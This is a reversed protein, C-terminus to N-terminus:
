TTFDFTKGNFSEGTEYWRVFEAISPDYKGALVEEYSAWFLEYHEDEPFSGEDLTAEFAPSLAHHIYEDSYRFITEHIGLSKLEPEKGTLSLVLAQASDDMSVGYKQLGSPLLYNNMHEAAASRRRSLVIKTKDPSFIFFKILVRPILRPKLKEPSVYNIWRAGNATLVFGEDVREVLGRGELKKMHYMFLSNQVDDPKLANFSVVGAETFLKKLIHAQIHHDIPSEELRPQKM